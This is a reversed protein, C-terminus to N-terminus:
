RHLTLAFGCGVHVALALYPSLSLSVDSGVLDALIKNMNTQSFTQFSHSFPQPDDHGNM